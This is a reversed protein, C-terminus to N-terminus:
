DSGSSDDEEDEDQEDSVLEIYSLLELLIAPSLEFSSLEFSLNKSLM